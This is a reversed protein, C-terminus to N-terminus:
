QKRKSPLPINYRLKSWHVNKERLITSTGTGANGYTLTQGYASTTGYDFYLNTITGKANVGARFKVGTQTLTNADYTVVTPKQPMAPYAYWGIGEYCHNYNTSNLANKGTLVRALIIAIQM